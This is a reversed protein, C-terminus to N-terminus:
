LPGTVSRHRTDAGPRYGVYSRSRNRRAGLQLDLKTYLRIEPVDLAKTLMFHRSGQNSDIFAWAGNRGHPWRTMRPKTVQVITKTTSTPIPAIPSSMAIAVKSWRRHSAGTNPTTM